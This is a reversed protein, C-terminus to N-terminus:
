ADRRIFGYRTHGPLAGMAVYKEKFRDLNDATHAPMELVQRLEDTMRNEYDKPVPKFKGGPNIGHLKASNLGLIKRKAAQTLEPYGYKRRM